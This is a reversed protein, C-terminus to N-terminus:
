KCALSLPLCNQLHSWRLSECDLITFLVFLDQIQHEALVTGSTFLTMALIWVKQIRYHEWGSGQLKVAELNKRATRVQVETQHTLLREDVAVVEKIGAEEEGNQM